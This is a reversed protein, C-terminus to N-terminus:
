DADYLEILVIGSTDGTGSSIFSYVGPPLTLLLASSTGDSGALPAAGIRAGTSVIDAKNSNDSANNNTVLTSAGHHLEIRPDQLVRAADLGSLTLTPGVGRLLLRKMSNGALVFGGIAVGNGTTAYVRSSINVFRADSAGTDADYVEVLVIGSTNGKGSVICTYIGPALSTLIASSTRDNADLTAAGVAASAATIETANASDQWNDNSAAISSGSHLELQPDQLVEGAGIGQTALTPGVARILVRKTGSGGIVFGAIAVRDGVSCYARTSINVLTAQGSASAVAAGTFSIAAGAGAPTYALAATRTATVDLSLNGNGSTTLSGHGNSDLTGVAVDVRDLLQILAFVRGGVGVVVTAIGGGNASASTTYVGASGTGLGVYSDSGVGYYYGYEPIVGSFSGDTGVTGQVTLNVGAGVVAASAGGPAVLAYTALSSAV